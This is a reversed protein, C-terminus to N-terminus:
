DDALPRIDWNWKGYVTVSGFQPFWAKGLPENDHEKGRFVTVNADHNTDVKKEAGPALEGSNWAEDKWWITRDTENKVTYAM